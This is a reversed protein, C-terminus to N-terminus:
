GEKKAFLGHPRLVMCIIMFAYPVVNYNQPFFVAAIAQMVGLVLAAPLAGTMNTMGGIILIPMIQNFASLGQSPTVGLMPSSLAGALGGLGVGIMFMLTYMSQVNIGLNEVMSRDSIIARFYIGIKTKKFMYWFIIAIMASIAIAFIYFVPIVIGSGFSVTGKLYSPMPVTKLGNGFKWIMIDNLIFCVGLTILMSYTMDKGFVGRLALETVGGLIFTIVFAVLIGLIFPMEYTRVVLYSILSGLIYFSGQAFNITGMGSMVLSMGSAVLYYIMGSALGTFIPLVLTSLNVNVGKQRYPSQAYVM